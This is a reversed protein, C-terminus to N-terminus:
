CPNKSEIELMLWLRFPSKYLGARTKCGPTPVDKNQACGWASASRGPQSQGHFACCLEGLFSKRNQRAARCNEWCRELQLTLINSLDGCEM